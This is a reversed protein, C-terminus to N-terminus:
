PLPSRFLQRPYERRATRNHPSGRVPIAVSETPLHRAGGVVM